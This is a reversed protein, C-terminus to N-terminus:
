ASGSRKAAHDRASSFRVALLPSLFVVLLVLPWINRNEFQYANLLVSWPKGQVLHGFGFEFSLTLNPRM